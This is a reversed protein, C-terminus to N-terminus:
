HNSFILELVPLYEGAAPSSQSLLDDESINKRKMTRAIKEPEVARGRVRFTTDKGEVKRKKQKHMIFLM